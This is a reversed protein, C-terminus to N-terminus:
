RTAQRDNVRSVTWRGDRAHLETVAAPSIDIRWMAEVPAALVSVVAARVVAGCGVAVTRGEQEAQQELWSGVRTVLARVSEGGHPTADPDTLWAEFAEPDDRSVDELSLGTWRGYDCDALAPDPTISACGALSATELAARGPAVLCRDHRPLVSGLAAAEAQGREDLGDAAAFCSARM